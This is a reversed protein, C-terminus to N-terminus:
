GSLKAAVLSLRLSSKRQAQRSNYLIIDSHNFHLMNSVCLKRLLPFWPQNPWEPVVIIGTAKKNRIKRLTKLIMSFPPFAYFFYDKWSVTFADISWANKDPYWSIYDECQFNYKSAFLDIEPPGFLDCIQQFCYPPLSWEMDDNLHRSLKDADVNEKSAIYTAFLWIKRLECWDWINKAIANLKPFQVGGMKNLYSIATTNDVRLLIQCNFRCNALSKLGYFVALLEKENIHSLVEIKDWQGQAFNLETSAGWGLSSADTFITMGYYDNRIPSGPSLIKEKWWELDSHALQSIQMSSNYNGNSSILALYKEREFIKTHGTSYSIAFRIAILMGILSAFERIKLTKGVYFRSLTKHVADQKKNSISIKMSKSDIVFGLFLCQRAPELRSKNWNIIFGLRELLNLTETVNRQCEVKSDAICLIDDLYDVSEHGRMRLTSMVPKMVKDFIYPAINLGFPLSTFKFCMGNWSFKFYKQFDEELPLSFYADKLDVTAMYCGPSVLYFASRIDQLKFHPATVFKNLKKLNLVFRFGGDSKPVLFYSSLFDGNERPCNVVAGINLLHEISNSMNIYDSGFLTPESPVFMQTPKRDFPITVGGIWNLITPDRTIDKWADLFHGL